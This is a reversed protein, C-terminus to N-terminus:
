EQILHPISSVRWTGTERAPDTSDPVGTSQTPIVVRIQSNQQAIEAYAPVGDYAGDATVQIIPAKIQDLLSRLKHRAM